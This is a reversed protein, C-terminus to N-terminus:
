LDRDAPAAGNQERQKPTRRPAWIRLATSGKVPYRGVKRWEAAPMVLTAHPAQAALLLGNSVSYHPMRAAFDLWARWGDQRTLGTVAEVLREHAQATRAEMAAM